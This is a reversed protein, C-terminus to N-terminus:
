PRVTALLANGFNYKHAIESKLHSIEELLKKKSRINNVSNLLRDKINEDKTIYDYAGERLLNVATTISDQGSIIIVEIDPNYKKIKKLIEDGTYDPLGLDLTVIDPNDPLHKFFSEGDFFTGIEFDPNLSLSHEILKNFVRDDEVVHIKM